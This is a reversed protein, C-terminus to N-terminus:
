VFRLGPVGGLRYTHHLDLVRRYKSLVFELHIGTLLNPLVVYPYADTPLKLLASQVCQMVSHQAIAWTPHFYAHPSTKLM